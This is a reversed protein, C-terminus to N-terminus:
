VMKTNGRIAQGMMGSNRVWIIRFMRLGSVKLDEMKYMIYVKDMPEEKFLNDKFFRKIKMSMDEMDMQNIM